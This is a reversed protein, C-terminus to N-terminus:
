MFSERSSSTEDPKWPVLWELPTDFMAHNAVYDIADASLGFSSLFDDNPVTPYSSPGDGILLQGNNADGGFEPSTYCTVPFGVSADSAPPDTLQSQETARTSPDDAFLNDDRKDLCSFLNRLHNAAVKRYEAIPNGRAIMEDLIAHAKVDLASIDLDISVVASIIPLVGM